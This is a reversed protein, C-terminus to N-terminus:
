PVLLRKVLEAVVILALPLVFATGVVRPLEPQWPWTSSENVLKQEAILSDMLNKLTASPAESKWDGAEIRSHLAALVTEMRDAIDAQMKVKEKDLLRHANLMPVVFALAGLAGFILWPPLAQNYHIPPTIITEATLLPIPLL